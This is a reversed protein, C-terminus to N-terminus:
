HMEGSTTTKSFIQNGRPAAPTVTAEHLEADFLM